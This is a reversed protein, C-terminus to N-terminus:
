IILKKGLRQGGYDESNSTPKNLGKFRIYRYLYRCSCQLDLHSPECCALEDPDVSSAMTNIIM